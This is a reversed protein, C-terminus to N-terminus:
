VLPVVDFQAEFGSEIVGSLVVMGLLQFGRTRTKRHGPGLM